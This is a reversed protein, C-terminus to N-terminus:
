VHLLLQKYMFLCNSKCTYAFLGGRAMFVGWIAFRRMRYPHAAKRINIVNLRSSNISRKDREVWARLPRTSSFYLIVVSDCDCDCDCNFFFTSDVDFFM